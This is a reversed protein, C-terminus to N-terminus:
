NVIQMTAEQDSRESSGRQVEFLLATDQSRAPL